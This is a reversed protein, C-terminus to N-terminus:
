RPNNDAGSKPPKESTADAPAGAIKWAFALFSPATLDIAPENTSYFNVNDRYTADSSNFKSYPDEGNSPCAVVHRPAGSETKRIPGEVVAGALIPASGDKSGILNAIQHHICRPFTTGDGVILSVGWPNAGLINALWHDANPSYTSVKALHDYVSALVAISAGHTPTDGSGWPVGFNFPDTGSRALAVDLTTKLDALLDAQSVALNEPNSESGLARFLDFHALTSVNGLGLIGGSKESTKLYAAAWDAASGLYFNPDPHLLGAPLPGSKTAFYLEVAAFELDDRWQTEGYFDYPSATLLRGSPSTDALDFIHEAAVLCRNALTADSTEFIQFCLAFDGALRGALNPSIKSGAPAAIFVPRNRIYRYKPDGGHSSDDDQPLRWVSHDNEYDSNGSGIGVQYYLTSSKDDWMRLLWELGFRAEKTFDSKTSGAGMQRPFDRVSVLMLALTYSTTHVFKLYDGADWWGGSADIVAGTPVLDGNIRSGERAFQPTQYVKATKDNLHAPATRLDSPIFDAGDRQNSYFSLANSLAGSYLNESSDIRFDPSKAFLSGSVTISYTGSAAVTFDLAYVSFKGWAGLMAGVPVPATSAAKENVISFSAGSAPGRTMLYARAPQGTEYGIQNVRVYSNQEASWAAPTALIIMGLLLTAIRWTQLLKRSVSTGRVVRPLMAEGENYGRHFYL